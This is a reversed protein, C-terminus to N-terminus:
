QQAQSTNDDDGHSPPHELVKDLLGFDKAELPSMFRDREMNAEITEIKKDLISSMFKM